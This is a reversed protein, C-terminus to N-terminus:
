GLVAFTQVGSLVLWHHLVSRVLVFPSVSSYCLNIALIIKNITNEKRKKIKILNYIGLFWIKLATNWSRKEDGININTSDYLPPFVTLLLSVSTISCCYLSVSDHYLFWIALASLPTTHLAVHSVTFTYLLMNKWGNARLYVSLQQHPKVKASYGMKTTLAKRLPNSSSAEPYGACRCEPCYLVVTRQVGDEGSLDLSSWSLPFM